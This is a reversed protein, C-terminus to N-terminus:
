SLVFYLCLCNVSFAYTNTRPLTVPPCQSQGTLSQRSGDCCAWLLLQLLPKQRIEPCLHASAPPMEHGTNYQEHPKLEKRLQQQLEVIGSPRKLRIRKEGSDLIYQLDVFSKLNKQMKRKSKMQCHAISDATTM